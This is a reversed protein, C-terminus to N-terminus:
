NRPAMPPQKHETWRVCDRYFHQKRSLLLSRFVALASTRHQREGARLSKLCLCSVIFASCGRMRRAGIVASRVWRLGFIRSPPLCWGVNSVNDRHSAVGCRGVKPTGSGTQEFVAIGERPEGVVAKVQGDDLGGLAASACFHDVLLERANGPLPQDSTTLGPLATAAPSAALSVAGLREPM